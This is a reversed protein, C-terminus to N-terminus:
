RSNSDPSDSADGPIQRGHPDARPADLEAAMRERLEGTLYHEARHASEHLHDVPLEFHRDLYSEWLRHGRVVERARAQGKPTLLYGGETAVVLGAASFRRLTWRSLLGGLTMRRSLSSLFEESLPAGAHQENQRFLAGLVDESVIRAALHLQHWARPILGYRPSIIWAAVFFLGCTLAIMGPTNADNVNEFGLPKFVAAPVTQSLRHGVVAVTAALLLTLVILPTLRVTLLQATAAPVVLLAIVLISGVSEFAAVVTVATVAMLVYHVARANIGQVTALGPDFAAIRLEKFFLVMLLLNVLLLGGNVLVARPVEHGQVMVLDFTATEVLRGLLVCDLDLHVSDVAFRVLFLGLAFLATFV